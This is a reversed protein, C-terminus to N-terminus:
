VAGPEPDEPDIEASLMEADTRFLEGPSCACWRSIFTDAYGLATYIRCWRQDRDCRKCRITYEVVDNV